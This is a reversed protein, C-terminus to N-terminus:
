STVENTTTIVYFKRNGYSGAEEIGLAAQNKMLFKGLAHTSKFTNPLDVDDLKTYAVGWDFVHNVNFNVNPYAENFAASFKKFLKVAEHTTVGPSAIDISQKLADKAATM